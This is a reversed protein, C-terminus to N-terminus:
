IDSDAEDFADKLFPFSDIEHHCIRTKQFVSNENWIKFKIILQNGKLSFSM